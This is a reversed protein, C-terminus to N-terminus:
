FKLTLLQLSIDFSNKMSLFAAVVYRYYMNVQVYAARFGFRSELMECSEKLMYSAVFRACGNGNAAASRGSFM